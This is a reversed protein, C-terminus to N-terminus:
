VNHSQIAQMKIDDEINMSFEYLDNTKSYLQYLAYEKGISAKKTVM